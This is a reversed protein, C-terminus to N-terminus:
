FTQNLDFGSQDDQVERRKKVVLGALILPYNQMM